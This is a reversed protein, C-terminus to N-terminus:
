ARVEACHPCDAYGCGVHRGEVADEHTTRAAIRADHASQERAWGLCWTEGRRADYGDGARFAREGETEADIEGECAEAYRAQARGLAEVDGAADAAYCEAAALERATALMDPPITGPETAATYTECSLGHFVGPARDYSGVDAM